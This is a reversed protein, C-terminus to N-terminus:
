ISMEKMQVYVIFDLYGGILNGDDDLILPVSRATPYLEKFKEMTIDVGIEVNDFKINKSSALNKAQICNPCPPSSRTYMTIM